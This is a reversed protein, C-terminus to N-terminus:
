LSLFKSLVWGEIGNSKKIRSWEGSQELVTVKEGKKASGALKNEIGPGSRMNLSTASVTAIKTITQENGQEPNEQPPVTENGAATKETKYAGRVLLYSKTVARLGRGDDRSSILLHNDAVAAGAVLNKASTVDAMVGNEGKVSVAKGSRLIIETGSGTFATTGAELEVAKFGESSAGTEGLKSKLLEIESQLQKITADNKAASTDVYSKSVLPDQESGPESQVNDLALVVNVSVSIVLLIVLIISVNRVQKKM